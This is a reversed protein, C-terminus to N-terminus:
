RVDGGRTGGFGWVGGGGGDLYGDGVGVVVGKCGFDVDKLVRGGEGEGEGEGVVGGWGVAVVFAAVGAGYGDAAGGEEVAGFAVAM